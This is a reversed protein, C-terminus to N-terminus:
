TEGEALIQKGKKYYLILIPSLGFLMIYNVKQIGIGNYMYPLNFIFDFEFTLWIFLTLCALRGKLDFVDLTYGVRCTLVASIVLSSFGVLIFIGIESFFSYGIQFQYFVGAALATVIALILLINSIKM